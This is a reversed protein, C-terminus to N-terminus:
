VEDWVYYHADEPRVFVLAGEGLIQVKENVNHRMIGKTVLFFWCFNHSHLGTAEKLTAIFGYNAEKSFAMIFFAAIIVSIIYIVVSYNM